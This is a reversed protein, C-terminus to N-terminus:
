DGVTGADACAVETCSGLGIAISVCLGAERETCAPVNSVVVTCTAPAYQLGCDVGDPGSPVGEFAIPVAISRGDPGTAEFTCTGSGTGQVAYGASCARSLLCPETVHADAPPDGCSFLLNVFYFNDPIGSSCEENFPLNSTSTCASAIAWGSALMSAAIFRSGRMSSIMRKEPASPM